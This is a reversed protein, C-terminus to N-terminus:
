GRDSYSLDKSYQLYDVYDDGIFKPISADFCEPHLLMAVLEATQALRPGSRQVLEAASECVMYVRGERWADTQKWQPSLNDYLHDYEEQTAKYETTVVIIADPNEYPIRDSTIHVWGYWNSFVNTANMSTVIGDLYTGSGSVWPSIDPELSIMTRVPEGGQSSSTIDSLADLVETIEGIVQAGALEYGISVGVAFINDLVSGIDEGPHIVVSDIGVGRLRDALQVHSTQSGDCVVLDPNTGTILEFSPNTYTGVMSISGDSKGDVISQPYNSYQDAGVIINEAKISCLIETVTPSLSVVRYKQAYGYIPNGSYDTAITPERGDTSFTWSTVAYDSPSQGYPADLEVWGPDGTGMGWLTWEGGRGIGNIGTVVGSGDLELEFGNEDCAYRLLDIMTPHGSTDADTWVTDYEGFDIVTGDAQIREPSEAFVGATVGLIVGAVVLAVSLALRARENM